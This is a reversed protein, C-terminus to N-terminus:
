FMNEFVSAASQITGSKKLAQMQQTRGDTAVPRAGPREFKPLNQVKKNTQTAAAIAKDYLMAKRAIQVQRADFISGVEDANFGTETLYKRLAAKETSRASEDKWEPILDIMRSSQEALTAQMVRDQEQAQMAQLYQQQQMAQRRETVATEFARQQKLYEVPDNEILSPDPPTPQPVQSLYHQIAQAMQQREAQAQQAYAQISKREEALAKTKNRYDAERSYGNLLESESVEIEQGDVKVKYTRGAPEENEVEESQGEAEQENITEGGENGGLMDAFLDAADKATTEGAAEMEPNANLEDM